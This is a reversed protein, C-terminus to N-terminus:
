NLLTDTVPHEWLLEESSCPQKWTLEYDMEFQYEGLDDLDFTVGLIFSLFTTVTLSDGYEYSWCISNDKTENYFHNTNQPRTAAEYIQLTLGANLAIIELIAYLEVPPCGCLVWIFIEFTILALNLLVLLTYLLLENKTGYDSRLVPKVDTILNEIESGTLLDDDPNTVQLEFTLKKLKNRLGVNAPGIRIYDDIDEDIAASFDFYVTPDVTRNEEVEGYGNSINGVYIQHWLLLNDKDADSISYLDPEWENTTSNERTSFFIDQEGDYIFWHIRIRVM